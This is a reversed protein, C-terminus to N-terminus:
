YRLKYIYNLLNRSKWRFESGEVIVNVRVNKGTTIAIFNVSQVHEPNVTFITYLM